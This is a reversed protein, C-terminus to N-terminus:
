KFTPIVGCVKKFQMIIEGKVEDVYSEECLISDHVTLISLNPHRQFLNGCVKDILIKSELRQLEHSLNKYNEQKATMVLQHLGPFSRQLARSLPNRAMNSPKQFLLRIAREKVYSRDANPLEGSTRLEDALHEYFQGEECVRIYEDEVRIGAQPSLKRLYGGLLLPQCNSIDVEVLPLGNASRLLKRGSRSVATFNSHFRGYECRSAYYMGNRIFEFRLIDSRNRVLDVPIQIRQLERFLIKSVEDPLFERAKTPMLLPRARKLTHHKVDCNRLDQHLRYSKSFEDVQYKPNIDILKCAGLHGMAKSYNRGIMSQLKGSHINIYFGKKWYDDDCLSKLLLFELALAQDDSQPVANKPILVQKRLPSNKSGRRVTFNRCSM